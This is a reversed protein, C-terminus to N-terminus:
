WDVQTLQSNKYVTYQILFGEERHTSLISCMGPPLAISTDFSYSGSVPAITTIYAHNWLGQRMVESYIQGGGICFFRVDKRLKAFAELIQLSNIKLFRAGAPERLFEEVEEFTVSPASTTLVINWRGPLPMAKPLSEATRRGMFVVPQKSDESNFANPQNKTVKSFTKLDESIRGWPMGGENGIYLTSGQTVGAVVIDFLM